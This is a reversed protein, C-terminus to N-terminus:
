YRPDDPNWTGWFSDVGDGSLYAQFYVGSNVFSGTGYFVQERGPYLSQWSGTGGNTSCPKAYYSYASLGESGTCKMTMAHTSDKWQTNTYDMTNGSDFSYRFAYNTNSALVPVTYVSLVAVALLSYIIGQVNIKKRERIMFLVEM